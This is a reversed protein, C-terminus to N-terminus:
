GLIITEESFFNQWDYMKWVPYDARFNLPRGVPHIAYKPATWESSEGSVMGTSKQLYKLDSKQLVNSYPVWGTTLHIIGVREYSKNRRQILIVIPHELPSVNGDNVGSMFLIGRVSRERPIPTIPDDWFPTLLLEIDDDLPFALFEATPSRWDHGAELVKGPWRVTDTTIFRLSAVKATIELYRPVSRIDNRDIPQGWAVYTPNEISDCLRMGSLSAHCHTIWSVKSALGTGIIPSWSPFGQRKHCPRLHRWFLAISADSGWEAQGQSLPIGWIHSWTKATELTNLAGVVAALADSEFTLERGTYGHVIRKAANIQSLETDNSPFWESVGSLESCDNCKYVVKGSAFFLRRKAFYCEQFTWARSSWLAGPLAELTSYTLQPSYPLIEIRGITELPISSRDSIPLAFKADHAGTAIFVLQAAAYIDAMQSIQDLKKEANEQDICYRDVWLYKYGLKQALVCSDHVTKPLVTLASLSGSQLAECAQNGWVYSLAVYECGSPASIVRRQELDIVNLNRLVTSSQPTCVVGHDSKCNAIMKQIIEIPIGGLTFRESPSLVQRFKEQTLIFHPAGLVDVLQEEQTFSLIAFNQDGTQFSSRLQLEYPPSKRRPGGKHHTIVEAFFRCIRCGSKSLTRVKRNIRPLNYLVSPDPVTLEEWPISSCVDCLGVRAQKRELEAADDGKQIANVNKDEDDGDDKQLKLNSVSASM